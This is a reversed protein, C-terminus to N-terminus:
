KSEIVEANIRISAIQGNTYLVAFMQNSPTSIKTGNLTGNINAIIQAMESGGDYITLSGTDTEMQNFFIRYIM